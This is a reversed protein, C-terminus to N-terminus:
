LHLVLGLVCGTVSLAFCSFVSPSFAGSEPPPPTQGQDERGPVTVFISCSSETDLGLLNSNRTCGYCFHKDDRQGEGLSLSFVTASAGESEQNDEDQAVLNPSLTVITLNSGPVLDDLKAQKSTPCKQM